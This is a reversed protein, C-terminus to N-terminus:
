PEAAPAPPLAALDGDIAQREEKSVCQYVPQSTALVALQTRAKEYDGRDAYCRALSRLEKSMPTLDACRWSQTAHYIGQGVGPLDAERLLADAVQSVCEGSGGNGGTAADIVIVPSCIVGSLIIGGSAVLVVDTTYGLGTAVYSLPLAIVQKVRSSMAPGRQHEHLFAAADECRGEAVPQAVELRSPQAACAGVVAASLVLSRM